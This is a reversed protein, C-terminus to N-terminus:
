SWRLMTATTMTMMRMRWCKISLTAVHSCKVNEVLQHAHCVASEARAVDLVALARATASFQKLSITQRPM